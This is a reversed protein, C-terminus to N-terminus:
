WCATSFPLLSPNVKQLFFLVILIFFSLVVISRLPRKDTQYLAGFLSKFFLIACGIGLFLVAYFAIPGWNM